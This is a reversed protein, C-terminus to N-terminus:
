GERKKAWERRATDLAHNAAPNTKALREFYALFHDGEAKAPKIAAASAKAIKLYQSYMLGDPATNAIRWGAAILDASLEDKAPPDVYIDRPDIRTWSGDENVKHFSAGLVTEDQILQQAVDADIAQQTDTNDPTPTM